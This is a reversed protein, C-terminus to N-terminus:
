LGSKFEPGSVLGGILSFINGGANLSVIGNQLEVSTPTRLLFAAYALQVAIQNGFRNRFEPGNIFGNLLVQARSLIGRDLLGTWYALGGPDPVRGLVNGYGVRTVFDSNSLSGYTNQFEPSGIFDNILATKACDTSNAATVVPCVQSALYGIRYLTMWFQFGGFDPNRALVALYAGTVSFGLSQYGPDQFFSLAVQSRSSTGQNLATSWTALSAADPTSGYVGFSLRHVFMSADDTSIKLAVAALGGSHNRALPNSLPYDFSSSQGAVYVNGNADMAVANAADIGSGGWLSSFYMGSAMPNLIAIFNDFSGAAASQVPSEIPFDFSSTYGTVCVTGFRDLALGTAVDQGSGGLFTSYALGSGLPNLQAVFASWLGFSAPQMVRGAIPFDTSSTVGAIYANGSADVAIANGQEPALPTGGSGGLYTSYALSAGSPLLKAVFADGSGKLVAQYPTRTPFDRSFTGGTVYASGSGDVAIAAGHDNNSGGLYTSYLLSGAASVKAVFADQGGGLVSQAAQLVPLNPSQTDGTIYVNGFPDAAIGNGVDPGSGGYYSSTMLAGSASFQAVFANRYGRLSAQFPRLVPLDASSTSGTIWAQNASDVAVGLSRDDGSGGFYTAFVISGAPSLKILFADVSGGSAPGPVGLSSGEIWGAVYVNGLTDVATSTAASFSSSSANTLYTSYSVSPDVILLKAHDYDELAFGVSGDAHLQWHAPILRKETGELQWALPRPEKWEGDGTQVLLEGASGIRTSAQYRMSIRGPDAGPEIQYDSKLMGGTSDFRVSIGKYLRQYVLRAYIAMAPCPGPSRVLNVRTSLPEEAQWRGTASADQYTFRVPGDQARLEVANGSFRAQLRESLFTFQHEAVCDPLFGNLTLGANATCCLILAGLLARLLM